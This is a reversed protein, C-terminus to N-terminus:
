TAPRPNAGEQLLSDETKEPPVGVGEGRLNQGSAARRRRIRHPGVLPQGVLLALGESFRGSRRTREM